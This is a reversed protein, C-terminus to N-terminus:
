GRSGVGQDPNEVSPSHFYNDKRQPKSAAGTRLKDFPTLKKKALLISVNCYNMEANVYPM